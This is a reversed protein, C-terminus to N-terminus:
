HLGKVEDFAEHVEPASGRLMKPEEAFCVILTDAGSEMLRNVVGFILWTVVFAFIGLLGFYSSPLLSAWAVFVTAGTVLGAALLSGMTCIMGVINMRLLGECGNRAIANWGHYGSTIYDTGYIACVVFAFTNFIQVMREIISILCTLIMMVIMGGLNGRERQQDRKQEFLYRLTQVIAILLSGFCISGFYNTFAQGTSKSVAVEIETNFYWRGIVGCCTIHLLNSVVHTGWYYGFLLVAFGGAWPSAEQSTEEGADAAAQAAEQEEAVKQAAPFVAAIGVVQWVCQLMILMTAVLFIGPQISYITSCCKLIKASFKIQNALCAILCVMLLSFILTLFGALIMGYAFMAIAMCFMLGAKVWLLGFAVPEPACQLLAMWVMAAGFAMCVSLTAVSYAAHEPTIGRVSMIKGQLLMMTAESTSGEFMNDYYGATYAYSVWCALAGANAAFLLGFIPDKLGDPQFKPSGAVRRSPM